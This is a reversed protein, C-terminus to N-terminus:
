EVESVRITNAMGKAEVPMSSISIIHDGKKVYGTKKM